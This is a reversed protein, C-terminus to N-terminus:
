SFWVASRDTAFDQRLLQSECLKSPDYVPYGPEDKHRTEYPWGSFDYVYIPLDDPPPHIEEAYIRNIEGIFYTIELRIESLAFWDDVAFFFDAQEDLDWLRETCRKIEANSWYKYPSYKERHWQIYKISFRPPPDPEPHYPSLSREPTNLIAMVEPLLHLIMQKACRLTFPIDEYHSLRAHSQRSPINTLERIVRQVFLFREIIELRRDM